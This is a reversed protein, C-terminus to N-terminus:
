VDHLTIGGSLRGEGNAETEEGEGGGVWNQGHVVQVHRVRLLRRQRPELVDV